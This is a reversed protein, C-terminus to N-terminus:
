LYVPSSVVILNILLLILTFSRITPIRSSSVRVRNRRGGNSEPGSPGRLDRDPGELTRFRGRRGQSSVSVTPCSVLGELSMSLLLRTKHSRCWNISELIVQPLPECTVVPGASYYPPTCLLLGRWVKERFDPEIVSSVM